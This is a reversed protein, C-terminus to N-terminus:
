RVRVVRGSSAAGDVGVLRYLYLGAPQDVGRADRGDWTVTTAGARMGALSLTRVIRGSPTLVQVAADRTAHMALSVPIRTAVRFPSPVAAGLLAVVPRSSPDGVGTVFAQATVTYAFPNTYFGEYTNGVNGQNAPLMFSWYEVTFSTSQANFADVGSEGRMGSAGTEKGSPDSGGDQYFGKVTQAPAGSFDSILIYCGHASDVEWWRGLPQASFADAIGDVAFPGNGGSVGHDDYHTLGVNNFDVSYRLENLSFFTSIITTSTRIFDSYYFATADLADFGTLKGTVREILRIPGLKTGAITGVVDDETYWLFLVKARTKGRDVLDTGDGGNGTGIAMVSQTQPAGDVFDIVYNTGGAANKGTTQNTATGSFSVYQTPVPTVTPATFVYVWALNGTLPDRVQIEDRSTQNVGAPWATPAALDGADQAMFCIEDNNDWVGDDAAFYSGGATKEDVQFPIQTWTNTSEAYRFAVLKTVDGGLENPMQAGTIVVPELNRTLSRPTAVAHGAVTVSATVALFVALSRSM